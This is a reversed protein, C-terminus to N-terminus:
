RRELNLNLLPRMDASQKYKLLVPQEYNAEQNEDTMGELARDIDDYILRSESQGMPSVSVNKLTATVRDEDTPLDLSSRNHRTVLVSNKKGV